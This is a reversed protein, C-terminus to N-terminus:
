GAFNNNEANINEKSRNHRRKLAFFAALFILSVVLPAVARVRMVAM